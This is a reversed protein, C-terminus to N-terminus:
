HKNTTLGIHFSYRCNFHEIGAIYVSILGHEWHVEGIDLDGFKEVTMKAPKGLLQTLHVKLFNFKEEGEKDQGLIEDVRILGPTEKWSWKIVDLSSEYGDLIIHKGLYWETRDARLKKSEKVQDIEGFSTGWKVLIGKDEFFIGKQLNEWIQRRKEDADASYPFIFTNDVKNLISFQKLNQKIRSLLKFM